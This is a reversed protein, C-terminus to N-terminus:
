FAEDLLGVVDLVRERIGERVREEPRDLSKAVREGVSPALAAAEAPGSAARAVRRHPAREASTASTGRAARGGLRCAARGALSARPAPRSALAVWSGMRRGAPWSRPDISM